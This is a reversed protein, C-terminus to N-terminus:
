AAPTAASKKKAMKAARKKSIEVSKRVKGEIVKNKLLLNNVTDSMQAGVSIWYKIRDAKLDLKKEKAVPSYTGLVELAVGQTDRKKESVILRYTPQKKKGLRQLRLTLM